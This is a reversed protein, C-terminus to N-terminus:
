QPLHSSFYQPDKRFTRPRRVASWVNVGAMFGWDTTRGCRKGREATMACRWPLDEQQDGARAFEGTEISIWTSDRLLM